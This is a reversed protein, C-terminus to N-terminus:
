SLYVYMILVLRSMIAVKAGLSSLAKVMGRGLGTGGGTILAIKGDFSGKPLMLERKPRFFSAQQVDQSSHDKTLNKTLPRIVPQQWILPSIDKRVARGAM